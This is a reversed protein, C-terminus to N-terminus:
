RDSSPTIPKPRSLRSLAGPKLNVPTPKARYLVGNLKHAGTRVSIEPDGRGCGGRRPDCVFKLSQLARAGGFYSYLDRPSFLAERKCWWCRVHLLHDGHLLDGLHRINRTGM